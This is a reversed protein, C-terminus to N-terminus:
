PTIMWRRLETHTEIALCRRVLRLIEHLRGSAKRLAHDDVFRKVGKPIRKSLERQLITKPRIKELAKEWSVGQAEMEARVAKLDEGSYGGLEELRNILPARFVCFQPVASENRISKSMGNRKPKGYFSMGQDLHIFTPPGPHLLKDHQVVDACQGKHRCGGVVFNNKNPSRDDNGIVWDFMNLESIHIISGVFKKSVYLPQLPSRADNPNKHENVDIINLFRQWSDNHAKYPISLATDLLHGVDAVRVQMSMRFCREPVEGEPTNERSQESWRMDVNYKFFDKEIWELYNAVKSDDLFEKVTGVTSGHKKVATRITSEPICSWTTPPVRHIGLVRDTNFAAVESFAEYPFLRQPVKLMTALRISSGPIPKYVVEFKVTRQDFEMPLPKLEEWNSINSFYQICKEDHMPDFPVQIINCGTTDFFAEHEKYLKRHQQHDNNNGALDSHVLSLPPGFYKSDITRAVVDDMDTFSWVGKDFSYTPVPKGQFNLIDLQPTNTPVDDSKPVVTDIGGSDVEVHTSTRVDVGNGRGKELVRPNRVHTDHMEHLYQSILYWNAGIVAMVVFVLLVMKPITACPFSSNSGGSNNNNGSNGDSKTAPHDKRHHHTTTSPISVYTTTSPANTTTSTGFTTNNGGLPAMSRSRPSVIKPPPPLPSSASM